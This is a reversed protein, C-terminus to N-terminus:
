LLPGRGEFFMIPLDTNRYQGGDLIPLVIRGEPQAMSLGSFLLVLKSDCFSELVKTDWYVNSPNSGKLYEM